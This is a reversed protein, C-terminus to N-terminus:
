SLPTRCNAHAPDAPPRVNSRCVCFVVVPEGLGAVCQQAFGEEAGGVLGAFGVRSEGRFILPEHVGFSVVVRRDAVDGGDQEGADGGTPADALVVDQAVGVASGDGGLFSTADHAGVVGDVFLGADLGGVDALDWRRLPPVPRSCLSDGLAGIRRGALVVM